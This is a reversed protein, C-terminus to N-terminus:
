FPICNDEGACPRKGCDPCREPRLHKLWYKFRYYAARIREFRSPEYPELFEWDRSRGCNWDCEETGAYMCQGDPGMGCDDYDDPYCDDYDLCYEEYEDYVPEAM